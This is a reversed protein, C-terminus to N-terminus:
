ANERKQYIAMIMVSKGKTTLSCIFFKNTDTSDSITCQFTSINYFRNQKSYIKENERSRHECERPAKKQRRAARYSYNAWIIAITLYKHLLAPPQIIM